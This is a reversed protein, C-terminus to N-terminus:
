YAIGHKKELYEAKAEELTVSQPVCGVISDLLKMGEEKTKQETEKQGFKYLIYDFFGNVESFSQEPLTRLKQELVAYPM